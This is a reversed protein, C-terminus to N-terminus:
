KGEQPADIPEDILSVTSTTSKGIDTMRATPVVDEPSIDVLVGERTTDVKPQPPRQPKSLM